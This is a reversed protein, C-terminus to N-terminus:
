IEIPEEGKEIEIKDNSNNYDIHIKLGLYNAIEITNKYHLQRSSKDDTVLTIKSIDELRGNTLFLQSLAGMMPLVSPSLSPDEIFTGYHKWGDVTEICVGANNQLLPSYSIECCKSAMGLGSFYTENEFMSVNKFPANVGVDDKTFPEPLLDELLYKKDNVFIVLDPNIGMLFQRCHGCPLASIMIHTVTEEGHIFANHYASQEAHLNYNMSVELNAGTYYEGSVGRIVCGVKYDSVLPTAYSKSDILLYDMKHYIDREEGTIDHGIM